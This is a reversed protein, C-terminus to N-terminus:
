NTEDVGGKKNLFITFIPLVNGLVFFFLASYGLFLREITAYYESLFLIIFLHMSLTIIPAIWLKKLNFIRNLIKCCFYLPLSLAILNSLLLLLIGLFDLRGINNIVTTYKSIETLAFRQRYAISTFISYFIIAFLIVMIFHVGYSFFIKKYDKKNYKFQGIFFLFYAADSFWIFSSYAGKIINNFGRAGVPLIAGVDVNSISLIILLSFGIISVLWLIDSLRGITRLNKMCLYFAVIFFPFFYFVNPMLTYLTYEVYDRQEDLPIIAKAFFFVFYFFLIIKSITKGFANELMEFFTLSSKKCTYTLATITLFDITLNILISIWMDEQAFKAVVSPMMFFKTIPLFAIIFFCIQRTTLQNRNTKIM